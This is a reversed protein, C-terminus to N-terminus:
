CKDFQASYIEDSKPSIVLPITLDKSQDFRKSYLMSEVNPFYPSSTDFVTALLVGVPLQLTLNGSAPIVESSISDSSTVKDGDCAWKSVVLVLNDKLELGDVRAITITSRATQSVWPSEKQPQNGSGGGGCAALTLVLLAGILKKMDTKRM